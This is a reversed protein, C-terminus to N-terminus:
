FARLCVELLELKKEASFERYNFELKVADVIERM